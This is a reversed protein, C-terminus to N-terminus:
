RRPRNGFEPRPPLPLELRDGSVRTLVSAWTRFPRWGEMITAIQDASAEAGLGYFHALYTPLRPEVGTMADVSGTGRLLILTGYMPGIGPLKLLHEMARETSMGLLLEADLQGDLAARAVAHLREVKTAELSQVYELEQLREPIPFAFMRNEGDGYVRGLQEAIRNRVITGQARQRRASIISWAAAEYPSHFSVPRLGYHERQMAGLVPDKEGVAAFEVGSANLSLIRRVQNVVIASDADSDITGTVDGNDEQNLTVHAHNRFDDVAFALKMQADGYTPRGTNPGFGFHTAAELSFPGDPTITFNTM